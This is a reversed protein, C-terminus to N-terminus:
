DNINIILDSIPYFTIFCSLFPYIDDFHNALCTLCLKKIIILFVTKNSYFSEVEHAISAGTKILMARM